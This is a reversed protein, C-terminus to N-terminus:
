SGAHAKLKAAAVLPELFRPGALADVVPHGNPEASGDRLKRGERQLLEIFKQATTSLEKGRRHMM